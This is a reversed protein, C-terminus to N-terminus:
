YVPFRSVSVSVNLPFTVGHPSRLVLSSPAKWEWVCVGALSPSMLLGGFVEWPMWDQSEERWWPDSMSGSVLLWTWPIWGLLTELAWHTPGGMEPQSGGGWSCLPLAPNHRTRQMPGKLNSNVWCELFGLTCRWIKLFAVWHYPCIWWHGQIMLSLPIFPWHGHSEHVNMLFPVVCM